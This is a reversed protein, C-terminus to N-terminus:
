RVGGAANGRVSQGLRRERWGRHVAAAVWASWSPALRRALGRRGDPHAFRFSGGNRARATACACRELRRISSSVGPVLGLMFSRASVPVAKNGLGRRGDRGRNPFRRAVRCAIAAQRSKERSMAIREVGSNPGTSIEHPLNEPIFKNAFGTQGGSKWLEKVPPAAGRRWSRHRPLLPPIPRAFRRNVGRNKLRWLAGSRTARPRDAPRPPLGRCRFKANPIM